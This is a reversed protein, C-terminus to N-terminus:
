SNWMYIEGRPKRNPIVGRKLAAGYISCAGLLWKRRNHEAILLDYSIRDPIRRGEVMLVLILLAENVRGGACLTRIISNFTITQPLHGMSIMDNLNDLAKEIKEGTCLALIMLGYTGPHIAYFGKKMKEFVQYADELLDKEKWSIRCLGRLLTNMLREDVEFGDRVMEKYTRLASRIKGWKLFGHLLTSYGIYDPMCNRQKMQRLIGICKLPRGEKCYGHFLTNYSVVSPTLGMEVAENLLEMAEDSRGVKCFGDMVATYTYVDPKLNEEKIKILMDFAEEVRGVYCLGKLLCNYTQITPKCSIKSMFDFVEFARQLGGKRCFGNILMTITEVDPQFGKEEVMYDLVRRAEDLNNTKCHCRSVISFTWSDPEFGYSAMSYFLKSSVDPEDAIFLAMLLRNFASLSRIERDELCKSLFETKEKSPLARITSVLDQVQFRSTIGDVVQNGNENILHPVERRVAGDRRNIFDISCIDANETPNTSSLSLTAFVVLKGRTTKKCHSRYRNPFFLPCNLLPSQVPSQHLSSPAPCVSSM